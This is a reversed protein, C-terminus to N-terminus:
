KTRRGVGKKGGRLEGAMRRRGGRMCIGGKRRMGVRRMGVRGGEEEGKRM